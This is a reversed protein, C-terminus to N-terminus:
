HHDLTSEMTTEKDFWPDSHTAANVYCFVKCVREQPTRSSLVKPPAVCPPKIFAALFTINDAM